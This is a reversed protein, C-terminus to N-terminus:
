NRPRAVGLAQGWPWRSTVDSESDSRQFGFAVWTRAHVGDHAAAVALGEPDDLSPGLRGLTRPAPSGAVRWAASTRRSPRRPGRGRPARTSARSGDPGRRPSRQVPTTRRSPPGGRRRRRRRRPTGSRRPARRRRLRRRRRVRRSRTSRPWLRFSVTSAASRVSSSGAVSSTSAYAASRPTGGVVDAVGQLFENTAALDRLVAPREAQESCDDSV